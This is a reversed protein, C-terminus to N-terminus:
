HMLKAQRRLAGAIDADPAADFHPMIRVLGQPIQM